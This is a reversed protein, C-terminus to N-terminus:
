AFLSAIADGYRDSVKPRKVKMTQTLLGNEITFPEGTILSLGAAYRLVQGGGEGKSGDITIM